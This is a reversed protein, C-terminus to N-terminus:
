RRILKRSEGNITLIYIGSTVEPTITVTQGSNLEMTESLVAKGQLTHLTVTYEGDANARMYIVDAFPNPYVTVEGAPAEVVEISTPDAKVYVPVDYAMGEHIDQMCPGYNSKWANQYIIRLRTMGTAANAPVEVPHDISLVTHYNALKDNFGASGARSGYVCDESFEGMGRWDSYVVAYNYRLDQYVVSTSAEGALNGRLSLTFEKGATVEVTQPVLQYVSSPTSNWEVSIDKDAGTTYVSKVYAKGESHMTGDPLFTLDKDSLEFEEAEGDINVILDYAVGEHVDQAYAGSLDRWANQYIIRIRGQAGKADAPITFSQNIDMIVDYNGVTKNEFGSDTNRKGVRGVEEFLGRGEWDAYIVAYCWRLDEKASTRAEAHGKINVSFTMGPKVEVAQPVLTFFADPCKSASYHADALAGSTTISEVYRIRDAHTSGSPAAYVDSSGASVTMEFDYCLGSQIPGDGNEAEKTDVILRVRYRGEPMKQTTDVTWKGASEAGIKESASFKYDGDTDVFLTMKANGELQCELNFVGQPAVSLNSHITTHLEAPAKEAKYNINGSRAGTTVLSKIWANASHKGEPSSYGDGEAVSPTFRLRYAMNQGSPVCYKSLTGTGQGCSGNGLGRQMRDFHVVTEARPTLDFDHQADMLDKDTFHLASFGVDGEAEVTLSSGAANSFRVHRLQQRNGMTQPKVFLEHMDSVTTRFLGMRAGSGRDVYNAEPGMAYYEVQELGPVLMMSLGLRRIEGSKTAFTTSVDMTGDAYITYKIIYSLMEANTMLASLTVYGDGRALAKDSCTVSSVTNTYTDNEIWRHNDFKLGQSDHIFEKGQFLMSTMICESSFTYTFEKGSITIVGDATSVEVQGEATVAPLSPAEQVTFMMAAMSTGAEIGPRENKLVFDVNLTYEHGPKVLSSSYNAAVEVSEGPEVSLNDNSGSAVTVGDELLNWELRFLNMNLFAYGNTVIFSKAEPSFNDAKIYQYVSKVEALKANPKRDPALIGNSCFNGQHPGPFDYGTYYGKTEGALLEAPLYIAQDIWDWICGGITRKSTEIYDWYEKLNGIANGMAHAYECLFHPRSDGNKDQEELTSMSPYMRSTMDTYTWVKQGEYHIMRPDLSRIRDYCAKFNEGCASENGMSWFIVSSHNRDRLVLRENRDVFAKEWTQDSSLYTTAHCELDAEDMVYLGFYDFMAYMKAANPYHSTRITNINHQKMLKVDTLMMDTTVARGVTPDTDSRNVGKFLVKQGNIHVFNGVQEIHRFGYKTSFVETEGANAGSLKVVVTYLVPNEASWLKLGSLEGGLNVVVNNGSKVSQAQASWQAVQKGDPDLLTVMPTVQSDSNGRNEIELAVNMNGATFGAASNLTSTIYHDRVFTRPVAKLTVDRYIGSMRFMDQCELYSGDSWRIVQVCVRNSGSQLADTIDFEHDNNAGQTYGIYQGNIWLFACSYIGGFNIFVQKDEWDAPLDFNRIYTGVPNSEYNGRPSGIKPPNSSNFPNQENCYIPSGYGQMEWNSPVEIDDFSVLNFTPNTCANTPRNAPSDAFKFKWTGNLSMHLDSKPEVWPYNYHEADAKMAEESSYPVYTAHATERNEGVMQQNEWYNDGTIAQQGQAFFGCAVACLTTALTKYSNHITM